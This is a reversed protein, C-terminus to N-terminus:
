SDHRLLEGVTVGLVDAIKQLSRLAPTRSGNEWRSVEHQLCGMREALQTQSIGKATRISKINSGVNIETKPQTLQEYVSRPPDNDRRELEKIIAKKQAMMEAEAEDYEEQTIAATSRFRSVAEQRSGINILANAMEAM